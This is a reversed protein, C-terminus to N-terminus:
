LHMRNFMLALNGGGRTVVEGGCRGVGTVAVVAATFGVDRKGACGGGTSLSNKAPSLNTTRKHAGFWKAQVYGNRRWPPLHLESSKLSEKAAACMLRIVRKLAPPKGVFIPPFLALLALYRGSPRAIEFKSALNTEVVYRDDGAVVDIYEYEGAPYRSTKEWRSKCIGADLGRERLEAMLARGEREVKGVKVMARETEALIRATADTVRFLRELTEETDSESDGEVVKESRRKKKKSMMREEAEDVEEERCNEVEMESGDRHDGGDNREIFSGFLDALELSSSGASHESGSSQCLRARATEDFPATARKFRVPIMVM